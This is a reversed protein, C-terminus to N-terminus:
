RKLNESRLKSGCGEDDEGVEFAQIGDEDALAQWLGFSEGGEVVDGDCLHPGQEGGAAYLTQFSGECRV